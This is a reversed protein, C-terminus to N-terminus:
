GGLQERLAARTGALDFCAEQNGRMLRDSLRIAEAETMDGSQIEAQLTRTLWRRAQLAYGVAIFPLFSDGGFVFVKNSPVAHIMRRLFDSSSYPDISWAWCMDVWVNPYHKALSVLEDGYPYGIHMLVFRVNPYRGLLGSLHGPRIRDIPMYGNGAYHGTHIKVPLNHQEALEVGRALSWDGLCLREEENLDAGRIAKELVPAVEADPRERWLLTRNYAHQTKVAIARPGYKAFIAAMAERLTELDRVEVGTEDAVAKLELWWSAFGALSLDYLFFDPGSRDPECAWVFDDIQVHDLNATEQLLRLRGGPQFYQAHKGQAEALGEPTIADLGYLERAALRVAEGYGTFQIAEWFPQAERFRGAVDPNSVDLLRKVGEESLGATRLDHSTYQSFLGVLIDPKGALYADEKQLHEHTDMLPTAQINAELETM